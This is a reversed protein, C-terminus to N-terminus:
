MRCEKALGPHKKSFAVFDCAKVEWVLTKHTEVQVAHLTAAVERADDMTSVKDAEAECRTEDDHVPLGGFEFSPDVRVLRSKMQFREFGLDEDACVESWFLWVGDNSERMFPKPLRVCVIHNPTCVFSADALDNKKEVA